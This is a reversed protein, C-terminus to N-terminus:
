HQNIIARSGSGVQLVIGVASHVSTDQMIAAFNGSGGSQDIYAYTAIDNPNNQSVLAVNETYQNSTNALAIIEANRSTFDSLATLASTDITASAADGPDLDASVAHTTAILAFALLRSLCISKSM